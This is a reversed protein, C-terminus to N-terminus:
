YANVPIRTPLEAYNKLIEMGFRHSKEPHFQVGFINDKQFASVFNLGYNTQALIDSAQNCKIYYSHVFYYRAEASLEQLISDSGVIEITNWGMHPVKMNIDEFEFKIVEADVWGLGPKIGEDSRKTLLQMGLCIGLIPKGEEVMPNLVDVLGLDELNQMGRDFAGVGPLILKDAAALKEPDNTIESSYGIKKLMNKISGVNGTKYDIIAIM